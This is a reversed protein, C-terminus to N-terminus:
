ITIECLIRGSYENFNHKKSLSPTLLTESFVNLHDVGHYKECRYQTSNDASKINFNIDKLIYHKPLLIVGGFYQPQMYIPDSNGNNYYNEHVNEILNVTLFEENEDEFQIGDSDLKFSYDSMTLFALVNYNEFLDPTYDLDKSYILFDYITSNFEYLVDYFITNSDYQSQIKSNYSSYSYISFFDFYKPSEKTVVTLPSNTPINSTTSDKLNNHFILIIFLIFAFIFLAVFIINKIKM